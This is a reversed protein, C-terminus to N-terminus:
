NVFDKLVPPWAMEYPYVESVLSTFPWAEDDSDCCWLREMKLTKIDFSVVWNYMVFFLMRSGECFGAFRVRKVFKSGHKTMLPMDHLDQPLRLPQQRTWRSDAELAWREVHLLKSGDLAFFCVRGDDTKGIWHVGIVDLWYPYAVPPLLVYMTVKTTDVVMVHEEQLSYVLDGVVVSPRGTLPEYHREERRRSASTMKWDSSASASDYVLVTYRQGLDDGRGFLVVAVRFGAGQLPVFAARAMQYGTINVSPLRRFSRELPNCLIFNLNWYNSGERLILVGGRSDVVDARPLKSRSDYHFFGFHQPPIPLCGVRAGSSIVRRWRRCVAACRIIDKPQPLRKFIELLMDDPLAMTPDEPRSKRPRTRQASDSAVLPRSLIRARARRLLLTISPM